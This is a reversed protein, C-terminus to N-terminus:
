RSDWLKVAGGDDGSALLEGGGREITYVKNVGQDSAQKNHFSVAGTTTDIGCLEGKNSNSLGGYLLSGDPRYIVSRCSVPTPSNTYPQITTPHSSSSSTSSENYSHIEVNGNILGTALKDHTPSFSISFPQEGCIIPNITDAAM